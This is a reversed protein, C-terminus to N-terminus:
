FFSYQVMVYPYTYGHAKGMNILFQKSFIHGIGAGLELDRNIRYSPQADLELGIHTGSLGKTDRAVIGGSANYFGDNASALWWDNYAGSIM